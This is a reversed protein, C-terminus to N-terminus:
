GVHIVKIGASEALNCLKKDSCVFSIDPFSKKLNILTALQISDIPTVYKENIIDISAVIHTSSVPEVRVRGKAIDHFFASKIIEYVENSILRDIDALRKLNSVFEVVTLNSIILLADSEFLSDMKDSGTEDIYRKFLASTDIFCCSLSM